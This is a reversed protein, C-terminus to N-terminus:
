VSKYVLWYNKSSIKGVRFFRWGLAGKENAEVLPLPHRWEKGEHKWLKVGTILSTGM